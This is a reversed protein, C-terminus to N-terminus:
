INRKYKCSEERKKKKYIDVYPFSLPIQILSMWKILLPGCGISNDMSSLEGGKKQTKPYSM